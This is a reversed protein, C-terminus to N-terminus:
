ASPRAESASHRPVDFSVSKPRDRRSLWNDLWAEVATFELIRVRDEDAIPRVQGLCQDLAQKDVLGHGALRGGLVRERIEGRFQDLIQGAFHGPGGKRRRDLILPPLEAAFAERALSRDRGGSRWEWSPVALCTEIIPQSMLPNLDPLFQARSSEFSQQIRLISAIHAAKGPLAGKPASLWPHDFAPIGLDAVLNRDLFLPNSWPRYARGARLISWAQRSADLLSCGTQRSVDMLSALVGSVSDGSLLRDAVCAASQSYGFVSDGGGGTVFADAGIEHAVTLHVQEYALGQARDTPRPLQPGLAKSVDVDDLRYPRELLPLDLHDCLARAYSREDGSPDDSFMTLCTLDAGARKLCAAVISSDLGGSVSLLLRGRNATWSQVSHRVTRGLREADVLLEPRPDVHEWPAWCAQQPAAPDTVRLGFGPFLEEVKHLSTKQSPMGAGLLHRGLEAYDIAVSALGADVLVAADSAFATADSGRVFYCPFTASPDRLVRVEAGDDIAAVWGGWFQSFLAEGSTRAIAAAEPGGVSVVPEAPGRRRFLNGLVCSQDGASIVPCREDVFVAVRSQARALTLRTNRAVRNIMTQSDLDRTTVILLYGPTM